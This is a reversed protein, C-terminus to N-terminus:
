FVTRKDLIRFVVVTDLISGDQEQQSLQFHGKEVSVIVNSKKEEFNILLQKQPIHEPLDM